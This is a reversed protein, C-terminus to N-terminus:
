ESVNELENVLVKTEVESASKRIINRLSISQYAQLTRLAIKDWNFPTMDYTIKGPVSFVKNIIERAL